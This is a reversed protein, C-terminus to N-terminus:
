KHAAELKLGKDGDPILRLNSWAFQTELAYCVEQKTLPTTQVFTITAKGRPTDQLNVIQKHLFDAYVRLVIELPANVLNASMEPLLTDSNAIPPSKPTVSNTLAFPVLMVFHEGDPIAAIKHERFM